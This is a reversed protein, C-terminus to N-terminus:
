IVAKAFIKSLDPPEYAALNGSRDRGMSDFTEKTKFALHGDEVPPAGPINNYKGLQMVLDFLHPVRVNLDKGPFYPRAYINGNINNNDQKTILIIHKRPQFYLNSLHKYMARAANGYARLGHAEGGSKNGKSMEMDVYAEMGQSASDWVLTDFQNVEHSGMWWQFFEDIKASNFACFTPVTSQRLTLMGPESALLFPRPATNVCVPTKGSGPKGFVVGKIGFQLAFDRAPRADSLQM